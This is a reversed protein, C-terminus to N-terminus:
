WQSNGWLDLQEMYPLELVFSTGVRRPQVYLSGGILDSLQKSIYLGLGTTDSRQHLPQHLQGFKKFLRNWEHASLGRGYDRVRISQTTKSHGFRVEIPQGQRSYKTANDILNFLIQEVLQPDTFVPQVDREYIRLQQKRESLIPQLQTGINKVIGIVNTPQTSPVLRGSQLRESELLSHIVRLARESIIQIKQMDELMHEQDDQSYAAINKIAVLPSKLEHAAVALLENGLISQQDLQQM